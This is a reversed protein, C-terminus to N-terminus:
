RRCLNRVVNRDFELERRPPLVKAVDQQCHDERQEAEAGGVEHVVHPRVVQERFRDEVEDDPLRSSRHAAQAAAAPFSFRRSQPAM